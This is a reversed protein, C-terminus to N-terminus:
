MERRAMPSPEGIPNRETERTHRTLSDKTKGEQQTQFGSISQKYISDYSSM